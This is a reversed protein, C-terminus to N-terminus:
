ERGVKGEVGSEGSFIKGGEGRGVSEVRRIVGTDAKGDRIFVSDLNDPAKTSWRRPLTSLPKNDSHKVRSSLPHAPM